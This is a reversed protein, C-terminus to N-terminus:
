RSRFFKSRTRKNSETPRTQIESYVKRSSGVGPRQMEGYTRRSLYSLHTEGEVRPPCSTTRSSYKGGKPRRASSGGADDTASPPAYIQEEGQEELDKKSKSPPPVMEIEGEENIKSLKEKDGEGEEGEYVIEGIDPQRGMAFLQLLDYPVPVNAFLPADAAKPNPVSDVGLTSAPACICAMCGMSLLTLISLAHGLLASLVTTGGLFEDWILWVLRWYSVTGWALVYTRLRLATGNLLHNEEPIWNTLAAVVPESCIFYAVVAFITNWLM